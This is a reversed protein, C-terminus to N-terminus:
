SNFYKSSSKYILLFIVKNSVSKFIPMHKFGNKGITIQNYNRGYISWNEKLIEEIKISREEVTEQDKKKSKDIHWLCWPCPDSANAAKVGNILALWKLDGGQTFNITYKIGNIIVEKISELEKAIEKLAESLIEYTEKV